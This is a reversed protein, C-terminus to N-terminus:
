GKAAAAEALKPRRTHFDTGRQFLDAVALLDNEGFLRGTFTLSTPTGDSLRFGNPLVVCPHGTLNTLLLADGGFTPAVLLDVKELCEEMERMLLTRVRQARIYDAAPLLRGQRFVNPWADATQRVMEKVRGDLVLADFAAAAEATLIMGLPAVPTRSPLKVPVLRVGLERLVGLSRRDHDRWEAARAKAEESVAGASRDEDFLEEVFGVRLESVSRRAPWPAPGDTSVPDLADKGAIAAFVLACDEASRAIPGIKDMTWSLAMVGHRSVRGFTPRLGTVGCRTCPSVISGLTETGIAFPVLGAATSSASGASSGSSGQDLKWPNKTTGGFWVDGWALEGVSTKAVLVAGAEELRRYVTATEPRVQERFLPSGWTTPYGPVAILDKAGWPIGHLPGREKGAALEEDARKAQALALEETVTVACSLVPGYTRLRALALKTLETSSVKRARLLRGLERVGAFALDDDSPPRVAPRERRSPLGPAGPEAPPLVAPAFAVAPPVSNDLTVARLAALGEATENLDSLMLERDADTFTVGSIWEAQKVMGATVKAAGEALASLARGFVAAGAGAGALLALVRRREPDVREANETM